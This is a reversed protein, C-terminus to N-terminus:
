VAMVFGFIVLYLIVFGGMGLLMKNKKMAGIATGAGCLIFAFFIWAEFDDYSGIFIDGFFAVGILLAGLKELGSANSWFQQWQQNDQQEQQNEM